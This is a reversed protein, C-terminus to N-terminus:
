AQLTSGEVESGMEVAVTRYIGIAMTSGAEAQRAEYVGRRVERVLPDGPAAYWAWDVLHCALRLNGSQMALRARDALRHAGGGLEAIVAAQEREPAPKLHSPVGDWWGGYLRWINRVIFEPEDYIPQLYPRDALEAPPRVRQVVEDLTLGQNMLALTQEQLSELYRATEDLAQRVRDAGFIPPGHGPLLVEADRAQMARLAEAWEKCYRQAKQPNGCNPTVWVFLDGTCLVKTAPFFLWTADDTEGRAHFLEVETGGVSLSMEDTYTVDPPWYDAPWYPQGKGGRFQRLNIIGNWGITERYRAFRGEVGAHAVVRPPEWSQAEAEAAYLHAGFCHDVHGHTYVITHVRSASGAELPFQARIAAQKEEANNFAGPDIVILGDDTRVISVNAFGSYFWTDPAVEELERLARWTHRAADRSAMAAAGANAARAAAGSPAGTRQWAAEAADRIAGM